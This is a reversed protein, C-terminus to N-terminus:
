SSCELIHEYHGTEIWMQALHHWFLERYWRLMEVYDALNPPMDQNWLGPGNPTCSQVAAQRLVVECLHCATRLTSISREPAGTERYITALLLYGRLWLPNAKLGDVLAFVAQPIAHQALHQFVLTLAAEQVANVRQPPELHLRDLVDMIRTLCGKLDREMIKPSTSGNRDLLATEGGASRHGAIRILPTM